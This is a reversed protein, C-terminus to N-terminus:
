ELVGKLNELGKALDPGLQEEMSMFLMMANMPYPMDGEFGWVVRTQDEGAAEVILFANDTAEFPELFRLEYDIRDNNIGIIEQEGKGVNEHDSEWASVFGVTGDEGSFTKQMNPDMQAWVSYNDQNKLLVVYDFVEQKNKNITVEREVYYDSPVFLAVVLFLAIVGVLALIIKVLVKM